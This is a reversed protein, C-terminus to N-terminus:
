TRALGVRGSLTKRDLSLPHDSIYAVADDDVGVSRVVRYVGDELLYLLAADSRCLRCASDLITQLVQDPDGAFRGLSTLVENAADFQERLAGLDRQLAAHEEASVTGAGTAREVM